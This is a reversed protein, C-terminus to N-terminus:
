TFYLWSKHIRLFGHCDLAEKLLDNCHKSSFFHGANFIQLYGVTYITTISIYRAIEALSANKTITVTFIPCKRQLTSLIFRNILTWKCQMKLLTEESHAFVWSWWFQQATLDWERASAVNWLLPFARLCSAIQIFHTNKEYKSLITYKNYLECFNTIWQFSWKSLGSIIMSVLAFM